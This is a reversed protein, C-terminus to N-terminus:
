RLSGVSTMITCVGSVDNVYLGMRKDVVSVCVFMLVLRFLCLLLLICSFSDKPDVTPGSGPVALIGRRV